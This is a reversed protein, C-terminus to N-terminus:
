NRPPNKTARAHWMRIIGVDLISQIAICNGWGRVFCMNRYSPDMRKGVFLLFSIGLLFFKHVKCTPDPRSKVPEFVGAAIDLTKSVTVAVWLAADEPFQMEGMLYKRFQEEYPGLMGKTEGRIKGTRWNHVSARWFVSAAFYALQDISIAPIDCARYLRANPTLMEPPSGELAQQLPFRGDRHWCNEMVWDEGNRRLRQECDWCLLYDQTQNSTQLAFKSTSWMPNPNPSEPNRLRKFAAAPCLHSKQLDCNEKLCMPCTGRM